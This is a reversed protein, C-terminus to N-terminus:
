KEESEENEETEVEQKRFQIKKDRFYYKSLYEALNNEKINYGQISGYFSDNENIITLILEKLEEELEIYKDELDKQELVKEEYEKKFEELEKEKLILEKYESNEILTMGM